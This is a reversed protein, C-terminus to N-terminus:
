REIQAELHLHPVAITRAPRAPLSTWLQSLQQAADGFMREPRGEEKSETPAISENPRSVCEMWKFANARRVSRYCDEGWKVSSM